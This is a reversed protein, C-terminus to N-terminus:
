SRAANLGKLSTHLSSGAGKNNRSQGNRVVLPFAFLVSDWAGTNLVWTLALVGGM